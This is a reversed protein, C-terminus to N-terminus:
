HAHSGGAPTQHQSESHTSEPPNESETADGHQTAHHHSGPTMPASQETEHRHQHNMGQMRTHDMLSTESKLDHTAHADGHSMGEHHMPPESAHQMGSMQHGTNTMSADLSKGDAQTDTITAKYDDFTSQYLASSEEALSTGSNCVAIVALCLLYRHLSALLGREPTFFKM